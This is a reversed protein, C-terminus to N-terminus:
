VANKQKDLVELTEAMSISSQYRLSPDKSLTKDIVAQLHDITSNTYTELVHPFSRLERPPNSLIALINDSASTSVEGYPWHVTVMEYLVVGLSYIDSVHSSSGIGKEFTEPAQYLVAWNDETTFVRNSLGFDIVFPTKTKTEILVNEPKIDRHVIGHKRYLRDITHAIPGITRAVDSAPLTKGTERVKYILDAVSPGEIHQMALADRVEDSLQIDRFFGQFQPVNPDDSISKLLRAENELLPQGEQLHPATKIAAFSLTKLNLAKYVKSFDTTIGEPQVIFNPPMKWYSTKDLPFANSDFFVEHRREFTAM